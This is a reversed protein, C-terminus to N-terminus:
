SQNFNKNNVYNQLIMNGSIIQTLLEKISKQEKSLKNLEQKVEDFLAISEILIKIGLEQERDYQKAVLEVPPVDLRHMKVGKIEELSQTALNYLHQWPIHFNFGFLANEKNAISKLFSVDIVLISLMQNKIREIHEKAYTESAFFLM